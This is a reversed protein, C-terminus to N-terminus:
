FRAAAPPPPGTRLGRYGTPFGHLLLRGTDLRTVRVSCLEPNQSFTLGSWLPRGGNSPECVEDATALQVSPPRRTQGFHKESRGYAILAPETSGLAPNPRGAIGRRTFATTKFRSPLGPRVQVSPRQRSFATNQGALSCSREL